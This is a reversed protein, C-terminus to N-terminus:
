QAKKADLRIITKPRVDMPVHCIYEQEKRDNVYAIIDVDSTNVELVAPSTLFKSLREAFWKAKEIDATWSYGRIRRARGNGSVGRYIKQPLHKPIPYLSRAKERDISDFLMDLLDNSIHHANTKEGVYAEILLGTYIPMKHIEWFNDVIFCMYEHSGLFFLCRAGDEKLKEKMYPTMKLNDRVRSPNFPDHPGLGGTVEIPLSKFYDETLEFPLAATM